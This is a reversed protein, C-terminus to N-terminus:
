TSSERKHINRALAAKLARDMKTCYKAETYEQDAKEKARRARKQAEQNFLAFRIADAFPRPMPASLVALRDNLVQSHTWLDTAVLPKGSKLQSYIKLPTNTGSIRPSVLVDAAAIYLLVDHPPVEGAFVIRKTIGLKAAKKKMKKIDFPNGGVLVFVVGKKQILAASELLLPIGQYPQFNGAYLVIKQGSPALERQKKQIKKPIIKKSEFDLFNEILFAKGAWGAKKVRDLLDPCIVLISDAQRLVANEMSQFLRILIRSRTFQFNKLQQPLCSHMDYIHPLRWFKALILGIFSAEEHTFIMDYRKILLQFFARCFLFIDLPIKILSPGIKIKQIFSIRPTRFIRLNRFSINQGLHYTVLDVHHGLETLAKIRFYVSIPTGRPQFFPEPALM